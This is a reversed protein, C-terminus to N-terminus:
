ATRGENKGYFMYHTYYQRINDGYAYRLDAYNEKYKYVNFTENGQRGEDIGYNAFHWLAKEENEGYAAKLDAYTNLYYKANFVSTYDTGNYVYKYCANM